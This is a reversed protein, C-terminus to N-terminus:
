TRMRAVISELIGSYEVAVAEPRYEAIKRRNASAMREFLSADTILTRISEALGLPDRASVFLANVGNQLQDPIGAVPTVVIPLGADMAELLVTPFGERWTTPFIFIDSSRYLSHLDAGDLFGAFTVATELGLRATVQRAAAEAPGSGAITLTCDHERRIIALAAIADLVGKERILRAVHLLRVPHHVHTWPREMEPASPRFANRVVHVSLEGDLTLWELREQESLVLIADSRHAIHRLGLGATSRRCRGFGDPLSGHFMTALAVNKRRLMEILPVDRLVAKQDHATHILVASYDSRRTEADTGKM